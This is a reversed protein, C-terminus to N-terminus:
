KQTLKSLTKLTATSFNELEPDNAVFQYEDNNHGTMEKFNKLDLEYIYNTIKYKTIGTKFAKLKKTDIRKALAPYQKLKPDNTNVIYTPLELQGALWQAKSKRYTLVRKGKRVVFRILNLEFQEKKKEHIVPYKHVENLQYAHCNKALPCLLCDTKKAQCFVRGLDMLAENVARPGAKYLHPFIFGDEFLKQIKRQLKLGKEENIGYLRSIVRELNADLALAPKDRGIAILANATYHGIGSIKKLQEFTRPLQSNNQAIEIAALRLNRARRYYGLGKWAMCIEDETTESLAKFTPYTKLFPEFHKVVTTVTTQQLMIESVLTRYLSRKKRWPLHAFETNSWILLEKFDM